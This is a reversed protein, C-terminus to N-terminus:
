GLGDLYSRAGEVARAAQPQFALDLVRSLPRLVMPPRSENSFEIITGLNATRFTLRDVSWFGSITGQYEVFDPRDINTLCSRARMRLPGRRITSEYTSGIEFREGTLRQSMSVNPNWRDLVTMDALAEFVEDPRRTTELSGAFRIM